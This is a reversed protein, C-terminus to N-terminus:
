SQWPRCVIYSCRWRHETHWEPYYFLIDLNLQQKKPCGWWYFRLQFQMYTRVVLLLGGPGIMIISWDFISLQLWTWNIVSKWLLVVVNLRKGAVALEV